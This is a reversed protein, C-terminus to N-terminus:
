QWRAKPLRFWPLHPYLHHERHYGFHYCTILSLWVPMSNSRARHVDDSSQQNRHPLYTGFYFLQAASAWAPLAFCVLIATISGSLWFCIGVHLQMVFYERWGYYNSLFNKLWVLVREDNGRTYDPDGDQAPTQHHLMHNKKMKSFSFGAYLFLSLTGLFDNIQKRVWSPGPLLTGHMADHAVIFLGTSLFTQLFLMAALLLAPIEHYFTLMTWLSGSWGMLIFLALVVGM